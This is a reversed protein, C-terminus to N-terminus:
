HEAGNVPERYKISIKVKFRNFCPGDKKRGKPSGEYGQCHMETEKETERSDTMFMILQGLNFGGNYCRPNHCDVYQGPMSGLRYVSTALRPNVGEGTETVEVRIDEVAPFAEKFSTTKGLFFDTNAFVDSAKMRRSRDM